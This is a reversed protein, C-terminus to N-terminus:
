VHDGTVSFLDDHRWKGLEPRDAMSRAITAAGLGVYADPQGSRRSSKQACWARSCLSLSRSTAMVMWSSVWFSASM